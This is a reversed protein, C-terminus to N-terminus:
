NPPPLNVRWRGGRDFSPRRMRANGSEATVLQFLDAAEQLSQGKCTLPAPSPTQGSALLTAVGIATEKIGAM